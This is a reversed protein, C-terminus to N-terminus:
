DKNTSGKGGLKQQENHIDSSGEGGSQQQEGGRRTQGGPNETQQPEPDKPHTRRTGSTVPEVIGTDPEPEKGGRNRLFLWWALLALLLIAILLWVWWPWALIFALFGGDEDDGDVPGPGPTVGGPAVTGPTATATTGPPVGPPVTAGPAATTTVTVGPTTTIEPPATTGPPVGPPVTAGPATTTTVTVGPTTTIAPQVVVPTGSAPQETAPPTTFTRLSNGRIFVVSDLLNDDVDAIALKMVNSQNPLVTATFTLVRTMGDLELDIQEIPVSSENSIYLESNINENVSNISVPEGDPLLAYNRGNVYFAFVDNFDTGVNESYEESAFVYQFTVTDGQPVFTIQLAAADVTPASSLNNLDVDGERDQEDSDSTTRASDNPGAAASIFGSSLMIGSDFGIMPEANEFTGVSRESGRYSV